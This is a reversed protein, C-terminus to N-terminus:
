KEVPALRGRLVWGGVVLLMAWAGALGGMVLGTVFGGARKRFDGREHKNKNDDM